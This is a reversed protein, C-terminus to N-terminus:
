KKKSQTQFNRRALALQQSQDLAQDRVERWTANKTIGPAMPIRTGATGHCSMCSSKPNDAPGNLMGNDQNTEAEDFLTTNEPEFGVQVGMPRMKKFSDALGPIKAVMPAEVNADYAEDHYYTLMMGGDAIDKDIGGLRSDKVWIDMQIHRVTQLERDTEFPASVHATWSFANKFAPYNATTFLIKVAVSGDAFKQSWDPTAKRRKSSGFVKLLTKAANGNYFAVGWDSGKVKKPDYPYIHSPNLPRENTLGHIAERGNAGVNLWPMNFWIRVLKKSEPLFNMEPDKSQNAMGEYFYKQLTQAFKLAGNKTAVTMGDWPTKEEAVGNEFDGKLEFLPLKGQEKPAVTDSIEYGDPKDKLSDAVDSDAVDQTKEATNVAGEDFAVQRINFDKLAGQKIVAATEAVLPNKGAVSCSYLRFFQHEVKDNIKVDYDIGIASEDECVSTTLGTVDKVEPLGEGELFTKVVESGM